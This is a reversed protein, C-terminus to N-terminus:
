VPLILKALSFFLILGSIDVLTTLAPSAVTAPDLKLKAVILPLLAGILNSTIVQLVLASTIVIAILVLPAALTAAEGGSLLYIKGFTVVGLVVAIMLSTKFEKYVVKYTDRLKIEGLALARIVVTSSQSGTNGGTDAVMPIYLALILFTALTQEFTHLIYGSVLGLLALIVIWVVRNKFHTFASTKLYVGAQHSGGIAMLKEFDETEEQAMIHTASERTLVGIFQGDRAIIPLAIFDYQLLKKAAIEQDEDSYSSIIKKRMIKAIIDTPEAILLERLSVCGILINHKDLVFGTYITVLQKAESRMKEMAASVTMDSTLRCIRTDIRVSVTNKEILANNVQSAFTQAQREPLTNPM